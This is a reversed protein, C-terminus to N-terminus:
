LAAKSPLMGLIPKGSKKGMKPLGGKTTLPQPHVHTFGSFGHTKLYMRAAGISDFSLEFDHEYAGANSGDGGRTDLILTVPGGPVPETVQASAFNIAPQANAPRSKPGLEVTTTTPAFGDSVVLKCSGLGVAACYDPGGARPVDVAFDGWGSTQLVVRDPGQVGRRVEASLIKAQM